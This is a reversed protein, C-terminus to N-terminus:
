GELTKIIKDRGDNRELEVVIKLEEEMSMEKIEEEEEEEEEKHKRIRLEEIFSEMENFRKEFRTGKLASKMKPFMCLLRVTCSGAFLTPPRVSPHQVQSSVKQCVTLFSNACQRSSSAAIEGEVIQTAYM